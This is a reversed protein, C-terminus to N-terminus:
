GREVGVAVRARNEADESRSYFHYASAVQQTNVEFRGGCVFLDLSLNCSRGELCDSIVFLINLFPFMFTFSVLVNLGIEILIFGLTAISNTVCLEYYLRNKSNRNEIARYVFPVLVGIETLLRISLNYPTWSFDAVFVCYDWPKSIVSITSIM